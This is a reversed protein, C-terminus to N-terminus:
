AQDSAQFAYALAQERLSRAAEHDGQDDSRRGTREEAVAALDCALTQSEADPRIGLEVALLRELEQYQRLAAGPQGAAALLRMLDRHGEERLPDM